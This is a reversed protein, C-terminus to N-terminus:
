ARERFTPDSDDGCREARGRGHEDGDAPHRLARMRLRLSKGSKEYAQGREAHKEATRGRPKRDASRGEDNEKGGRDRELSIRAEADLHLPRELAYRCAERLHQRELEM